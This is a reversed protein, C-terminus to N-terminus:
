RNGSHNWPPAWPGPLKSSCSGTCWSDTPMPWVAQGWSCNTRCSPPRWAQRRKLQGLVQRAEQLGTRSSPPGPLRPPHAPGQRSAKDAPSGPIDRRSQPRGPVSNDRSQPGSGSGQAELASGKGGVMRGAGVEWQGPAGAACRWSLSSASGGKLPSLRLDWSPPRKPGLLHCRACAQLRPLAQPPPCLVPHQSPAAPPSPGTGLGCERQSHWTPAWGLGDGRELAPPHCCHLPCAEPPHPLHPIAQNTQPM